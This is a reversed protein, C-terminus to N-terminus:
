KINFKIKLIKENSANKIYENKIKVYKFRM